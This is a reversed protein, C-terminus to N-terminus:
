LMEGIRTGAYDQETAFGMRISQAAIFANAEEIQGAESGYIARWFTWHNLNIEGRAEVRKVMREAREANDFIPGLIYIEGHATEALVLHQTESADPSAFITAATVTFVTQIKM